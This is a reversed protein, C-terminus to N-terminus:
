PTITVIAISIRREIIKLYHANGIRHAAIVGCIADPLWLLAELPGKEHDIRLQGSVVKQARLTDVMRRDRRDDATGRSEFTASTVGASELEFMMRRLCLRRRREDREGPQGNRVVVLHELPLDAIVESIQARRADTEDRWHLKPQGKKLMSGIVERVTDLHEESCISAALLYTDPDAFRHSGSEDLYARLRRANV